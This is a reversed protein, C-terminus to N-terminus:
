VWSFAGEPASSHAGGDPSAPTFIDKKFIHKVCIVATAQICICAGSLM